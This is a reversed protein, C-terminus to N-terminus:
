HGRVQYTSDRYVGSYANHGPIGYRPTDQPPLYPYAPRAVAGPSQPRVRKYPSSTDGGSVGAGRSICLIYLTIVGYLSNNLFFM